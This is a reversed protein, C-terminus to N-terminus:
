KKPQIRYARHAIHLISALARPTRCKCKEGMMHKSQTTWFILELCWTGREQLVEPSFKSKRGCSTAMSACLGYPYRETTHINSFGMLYLIIIVYKGNNFRHKNMMHNMLICWNGRYVHLILTTFTTIHKYYCAQRIIWM